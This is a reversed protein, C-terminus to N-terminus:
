RLAYCYDFLKLARENILKIVQELLMEDYLTPDEEWQEDKFNIITKQKEGKIRDVELALSKSSSFLKITINCDNSFLRFGNTGSQYNKSSYLGIDTNRVSNDYFFIAEAIKIFESLDWLLNFGPSGNNIKKKFKKLKSKHRLYGFLGFLSLKKKKYIEEIFVNMSPNPTKM